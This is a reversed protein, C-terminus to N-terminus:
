DPLGTWREFLEHEVGLLDLAKGVSHDVLQEVTTPRVYFGPVPPLIIEGVRHRREHAPPPRSPAADRRGSM